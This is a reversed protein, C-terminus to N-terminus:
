PACRVILTLWVLLLREASVQAQPVTQVPKIPHGHLILVACFVLPVVAQGLVVAIHWLGGATELACFAAAAVIAVSLAACESHRPYVRM